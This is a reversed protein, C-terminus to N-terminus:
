WCAAAAPPSSRTATSRSCARGRRVIRGAPGPLHCGAGRRRGRGAPVGYRTACRPWCGTTTARSATSTSPSWPPPCGGPRPGRPGAGRGGSDPDITWTDAALLRRVGPHGWTSARRQRHGRLHVLPGAGRRGAGGRGAAPRPPPRRHRQVPRRRPGGRGPRRVRAEFADVDPGLPAIWNSDFAELLMRREEPGVEPPSLYVRTM